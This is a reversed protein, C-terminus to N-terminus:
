AVAVEELVQTTILDASPDRRSTIEALLAQYDPDAILKAHYDGHAKWDATEIVAGVTNPEGGYFSNWVRLKGGCRTVIKDARAIDKM